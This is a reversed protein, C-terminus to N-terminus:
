RVLRIEEPSIRLFAGRDPSCWDELVYRTLARHAHVAPRHTHGHVLVNIGESALADTAQSITERAVDMIAASLHAKHSESARRQQHAFELRAQLPQALFQQQWNSTRVMVRAQQYTHDDTVWQDGHSLAIQWAGFDIRVPDPLLQACARQCWNDGLLFDRNGHMVGIWSGERSIKALVQALADAAADPQDDGVWVEFLDGALVIAEHPRHLAELRALFRQTLAPKGAELHMDSGVLV